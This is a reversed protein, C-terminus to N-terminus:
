KTNLNPCDKSRHAKHRSSSSNNKLGLTTMFRHCTLRPKGIYSRLSAIWTPLSRPLADARGRPKLAPRPSDPFRSTLFFSTLKMNQYTPYAVRRTKPFQHLQLLQLNAGSGCKLRNAPELAYGGCAKQRPTKRPSTRRPLGALAEPMGKEKIEGGGNRERNRFIRRLRTEMEAM